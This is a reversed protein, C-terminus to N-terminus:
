RTVTSIKLSTLEFQKNQLTCKKTYQLFHLSIMLTHKKDQQRIIQHFGSSIYKFVIFLLINTFLVIFYKLLQGFWKRYFKKRNSFDFFGSYCCFSWIMEKQEQKIKQSFQFLISFGFTRFYKQIFFFMFHIKFTDKM